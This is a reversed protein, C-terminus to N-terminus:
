AAGQAANSEPVFMWELVHEKPVTGADAIMWRGIVENYKALALPAGIYNFRVIVEPRSEGPVEDATKKWGPVAVMGHEALASKLDSLTAPKTAVGTTTVQYKFLKM